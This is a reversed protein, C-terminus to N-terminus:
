YAKKFRLKHAYLVWPFNKHSKLIPPTSGQWGKYRYAGLFGRVQVNDISFPSGQSASSNRYNQSLLQIRSGGKYDECAYGGHGNAGWPSGHNFIMVDGTKIDSLNYILDFQDGANSQRVAANWCGYVSHTGDNSLFMGLQSWLLQVGDWCQFGFSGDLDYGHGNVQNKFAAFTTIDVVYSPM